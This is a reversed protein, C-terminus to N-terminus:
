EFKSAYAPIAAERFFSEWERAICEPTFAQARREGHEAMQLYLDANSRLTNLAELTEGLTNVELYDLECEREARYASEPGLIAPVGARWANVLKSAPKVDFTEVADFSRVAVVADVQRYDHWQDPPVIRWQLGLKKLAEVWDSGQLQPALHWSRGFYAINRLTAGREQDRRLLPDQPWYHIFCASDRSESTSVVPDTPNQVVHLEATELAKRDAKICVLLIGELALESLDELFDRHAIVIGRRPLTGALNCAIGYRKLYLYTKLTWSYRGFHRPGRQSEYAEWYGQVSEPLPDFRAQEPLYFYIEPPFGSTSPPM